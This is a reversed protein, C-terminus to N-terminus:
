NMPASELFVRITPLLLALQRKILASQDQSHSMRLSALLLLFARSRLLFTTRLLSRTHVQGSSWIHSVFTHWKLGEAVDLDPVERTEVLRLTPLDLDFFSQIVIGVAAVLLASLNFVLMVAVIEAESEFGLVGVAMATTGETEIDQFLRLLTAGLFVCVLAFQSCISLFNLDQRKFPKLACLLMCYVISLLLGGLIRM